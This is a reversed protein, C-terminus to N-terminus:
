TVNIRDDSRMDSLRSLLRASAIVPASRRKQKVVM